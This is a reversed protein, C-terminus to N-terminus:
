SFPTTTAGSGTTYGSVNWTDVGDHTLKFSTGLLGGTTSGNLSIQTMPPVVTFLVDITATEKMYMFGGLQDLGTGNTNITYPGAGAATLVEFTFNTGEPPQSPLTAVVGAARDFYVVSGTDAATLAVTATIVDLVPTLTGTANTGNTGNAGAPGTAGTAGTDGKEGVSFVLDNLCKSCTCM